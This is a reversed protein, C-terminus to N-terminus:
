HLEGAPEFDPAAFPYGAILERMDGDSILHRYRHIIETLPWHSGPALVEIGLV